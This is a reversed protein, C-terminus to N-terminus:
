KKVSTFLKKLPTKVAGPTVEPAPQAAPTIQISAPAAPKIPTAPATEVPTPAVETVVADKAALKEALSITPRREVEVPINKPTEKPQEQEVAQVEGELLPISTKQCVELLRQKAEDLAFAPFMAQGKRDGFMIKANLFLPNKNLKEAIEEATDQKCVAELDKDYEQIASLEDETFYDAYSWPCPRGSEPNWDLWALPIQKGKIAPLTDTIPMTKYDTGYQSTKTKDVEKSLYVDFMFILGYELYGLRKKSVTSQLSKLQDMVTWPYDYIRVTPRGENDADRDFV